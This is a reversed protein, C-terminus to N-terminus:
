DDYELGRILLRTLFNYYIRIAQPFNGMTFESLSVIIEFNPRQWKEKRVM